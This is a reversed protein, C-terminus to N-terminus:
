QKFTFDHSCLMPFRSNKFYGGNKFLQVSEYWTYSSSWRLIQKILKHGYNYTTEVSREATIMQFSFHRIFFYNATMKLHRLVNWEVRMSLSEIITNCVCICTCIILKSWLSVRHNDRLILFIPQQKIGGGNRFPDISWSWRRVKYWSKHSIRSRKFFYGATITHFRFISQFKDSIFSVMQSLKFHNNPM